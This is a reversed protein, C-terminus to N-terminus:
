LLVHEFYQADVAILLLVILFYIYQVTMEVATAASIVTCYM